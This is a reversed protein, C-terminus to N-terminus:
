FVCNLTNHFALTTPIISTCIITPFSHPVQINMTVNYRYSYLLWVNKKKKEKVIQENCVSIHSAAVSPTVHAFAKAIVVRIASATVRISKM